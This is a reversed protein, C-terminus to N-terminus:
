VVSKRDTEWDRYPLTCFNCAEKTCGPTDDKPYSYLVVRQGRFDALRRTQNQDDVLEFDPAPIGASISM